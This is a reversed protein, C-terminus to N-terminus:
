APLPFGPATEEPRLRRPGGSARFWEVTTEGFGADAFARPVASEFDAQAEPAVAAVVCGGFGAGTLRAGYCGDVACAAEVLADLEATSVSFLDRLSEHAGTMAAGFGVFDDGRLARTGALARPVEEVVHQVRADLPPELRAKHAMFAAPTVDRLCTLGPLEGQLASLASTCEAVRENFASKALERSVGSDVVAISLRDACFPVHERTHEMCDFLLAHNDRALLIAAQDIIGCRVGVYETEARHAMRILKDPAVKVGLLEALAFVILCEVSASSSLGVAMPLDATLDIDVGGFNGWEKRCVYLAGEAYASWDRTRGPRLEDLTTSVPKDHFVASKLGIRGDSRLRFAGYTGKSLAVSLVHGGNYDMHAGLLNARGPAFFLAPADANQAAM